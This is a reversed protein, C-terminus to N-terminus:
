RPSHRRVLGHALLAIGGVAFAGALFLEGPKITNGLMIPLVFVLVAVPILVVGLRIEDRPTMDAKAKRVRDDRRLQQEPTLRPDAEDLTVGNRKVWHRLVMRVGFVIGIVGGALLVEFLVLNKGDHPSDVLSITAFVVTAVSVILLRVANFRQIRNPGAPGVPESM